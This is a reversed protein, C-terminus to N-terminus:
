CSHPLFLSPFPTSPPFSARHTFCSPFFIVVFCFGAVKFSPLFSPLFCALIFSLWDCNLQSVVINGYTARLNESLVTSSYNSIRSICQQQQQSSTKTPPTM